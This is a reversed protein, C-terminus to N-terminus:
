RPVITRLSCALILGLLLQRRTFKGTELLEHQDLLCLSAAVGNGLLREMEAQSHHGDCLAFVRSCFPDLDFSAHRRTDHVVAQAGTWEVVLSARQKRAHM